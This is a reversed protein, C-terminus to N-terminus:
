PIIWQPNCSSNVMKLTRPALWSASLCGGKSELDNNEAKEGPVKWEGSESFQLEGHIMSMVVDELQWPWHICIWRNMRCVAQFKDCGQSNYILVCMSMEALFVGLNKSLHFFRCSATLWMSKLQRPGLGPFFVLCDLFCMVCLMFVLLHFASQIGSHGIGWHRDRGNGLLGMGIKLHHLRWTPCVEPNQLVVFYWPILMLLLLFTVSRSHILIEVWSLTFFICYSCVM